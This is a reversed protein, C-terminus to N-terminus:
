ANLLVSPPVTCALPRNAAGQHCCHGEHANGKGAPARVKSRSHPGVGLHMWLAVLFTQLGLHARMPLRWGLATLVLMFIGTGAPPPFTVDRPSLAHPVHRLTCEPPLAAERPPMGLPLVAAGSSVLGAAPGRPAAWATHPSCGRGAGLALHSLNLASALMHGSQASPFVDDWAGEEFNYPLAMLILRLTVLASVRWRTYSRPAIAPWALGIGVVARVPHSPTPHPRLGRAQKQREACCLTPRAAGRLLGIFASGGARESAIAGAMSQVNHHALLPSALATKISTVTWLAMVLASFAKDQAVAAAARDRRASRSPPVVSAAAVAPAPEIAPRASPPGGVMSARGDPMQVM